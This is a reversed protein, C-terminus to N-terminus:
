STLSAPKSNVAVMSPVPYGKARSISESLREATFPHSQIFSPVFANKYTTLSLQKYLREFFRPMAAADYGAQVLIQQGMRDAEREHERSHNAATEATATQSGIM